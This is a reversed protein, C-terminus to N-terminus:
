SELEALRKAARLLGDFILGSVSEPFGTPLRASVREVVGPAQQTLDLIDEAATSVLGVRAATSMWHRPQIEAWRYHRNKGTVAM